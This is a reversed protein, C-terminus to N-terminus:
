LQPAEEAAMVHVLDSVSIMGVPTCGDSGIVILRHIRRGKMIKAAEDLSASVSVTIAPTTMLHRVALGVLGPWLNEISRVRLLDTQSLIGVVNRDEDVVPLGHVRHADMLQAAEYLQANAHITVLGRTMAEGVLRARPENM